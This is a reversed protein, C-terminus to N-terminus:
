EYIEKIKKNKILEYYDKDTNQLISSLTRTCFRTTRLRYFTRTPIHAAFKKWHWFYKYYNRNENLHFIKEGTKKYHAYDIKLLHKASFNMKKKRISLVGFNHPLHVIEGDLARQVIKKHLANIIRVYTKRDVILNSERSYKTDFKSFRVSKRYYFYYDMMGYDCIIREKPM